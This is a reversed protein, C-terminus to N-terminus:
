DKQADDGDTPPKPSTPEAANLPARKATRLFLILFVIAVLAATYDAIPTAMAIGIAPFHADLIFMLPVDLGGKRLLSLLLARFKKGTAQFVTVAIFGVSASLVAWCIIRLFRTGYAVTEDSDIFARILPETCSLSITLCILAFGFTCASMFLVSSRMRRRDGSAYNYGILPLAGQTIGQTIAFSAMNVRKAVGIGAIAADGYAAMLYNVVLNSCTTLMSMLCAPLGISMVALSTKRSFASRIPRLTVVGRLKLVLIVFYLASVCNSILTALAAGTVGMGLGRDFVFLPDLAVNLIGGLSLGIGAHMAKGEARVLHALVSSLVTPVSGAVITYILYDVAYQLRMGDAGLATLLPKRFLGFVLSLVAAVAIGGWVAFSSARRAGDPDGSGLARSMVSAGGIGFLNATATLLMYIPLCLTVAAVMTEDGLRGVFFTDALNYVITILQSIVTPLVLSVVAKPVPAKEFIYKEKESLRAQMNVTYYAPRM